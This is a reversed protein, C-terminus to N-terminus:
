DIMEPISNRVVIKEEEVVKSEIVSNKLAIEEKVENPLIEERMRFPVINSEERYEPLVCKIEPRKIEERPSSERRIYIDTKKWLENYEKKRKQHEIEETIIFIIFMLFLILISLLTVFILVAEM